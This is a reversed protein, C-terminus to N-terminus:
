YLSYIKYILFFYQSNNQQCLVFLKLIFLNLFLYLFKKSELSNKDITFFRNIHQFISKIEKNFNEFCYYHKMSELHPGIDRIKTFCIILIKSIFMLSRYEIVKDKRITFKNKINDEEGEEQIFNDNKKYLNNFLLRKTIMNIQLFSNNHFDSDVIKKMKNIMEKESDFDYIRLHKIVDRKNDNKNTFDVFEIKSFDDFKFEFFNKFM